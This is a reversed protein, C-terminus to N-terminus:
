KAKKTLVTGCHQCGDCLPRHTAWHEMQCEADCVLCPPVWQM